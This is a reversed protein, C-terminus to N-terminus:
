SVKYLFKHEAHSIDDLKRRAHLPFLFIIWFKRVHLQFEWSRGYNKSIYLFLFRMCTVGMIQSGGNEFRGYFSSLSYLVSSNDVERV